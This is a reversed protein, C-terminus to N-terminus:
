RALALKAKKVSEDWRACLFGSAIRTGPRSPGGVDPDRRRGELWDAGHWRFFMSALSEHNRPRGLHAAWETVRRAHLTGWDGQQKALTAAARLRRRHFVELPECPWREVSLFQSVMRRQLKNQADALSETWPWRTNRFALIPLVCRDLMRCRQQITLGRTQQGVCNAGFAALM